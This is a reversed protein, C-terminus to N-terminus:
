LKTALPRRIRLFDAKVESSHTNRVVPHYIRLVGPRVYGLYKYQEKFVAEQSVM